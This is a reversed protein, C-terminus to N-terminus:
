EIKDLLMPKTQKTFLFCMKPKRKVLEGDGLVHKKYSHWQFKFVYFELCFVCKGCYVIHGKNNNKLLSFFSNSDQTRTEPSFDARTLTWFKRVSFVHKLQFCLASNKSISKVSFIWRKWDVVLALSNFVILFFFFFVWPQFDQHAFPM